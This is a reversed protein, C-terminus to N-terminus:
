LGLGVNKPSQVQAKHLSRKGFAGLYIFLYVLIM